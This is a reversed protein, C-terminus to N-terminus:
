GEAPLRPVTGRRDIIWRPAFRIAGIWVGIGYGLHICAYAAVVDPVTSGHRAAVDRAFYVAGAIWAVIAAVTLIAAAPIVLALLGTVVIFGVLAPPMLHRFQLMSPHKQVARVRYMGYRVYQQLIARWSARSKYVARISPEFRVRGGADLIRRDLEEDQNRIMEPDFLGIREFVWRPWCGLWVHPLDAPTTMLHYRRGGGIGFPSTSAASVARSARTEGTKMMLGGVNWAETAHLAALCSILYDTAPEAHGDMRVIIDGRSASIAANLGDPTAGVPNDVLRVRADRSAIELVVDRTRDTSRGDAVIVEVDAVARDVLFPSIAREITSAENVAPIVVSVVPRRSGPQSPDTV